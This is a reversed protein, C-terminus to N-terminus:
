KAGVFSQQELKVECGLAKINQLDSASLTKKNLLITFLKATDCVPYILDNGYVNKIKVTITAM